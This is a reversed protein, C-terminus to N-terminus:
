RKKQKREPKAPAASPDFGVYVVYNDLADGRPLPFTVDQDVHVFPVTTQGPPVDVALRYLKSIIPKPNTGEEVVAVRLPVDVRGPGGAPGLLVRGQVGVKMTMVGGLAACERATQGITVQYRMSMPSSDNGATSIALTSAGQRVAVGPCDIEEPPGATGGAGQQPTSPGFFFSKMRDTIGPSSDSQARAEGLLPGCLMLAVFAARVPISITMLLGDDAVRGADNYRRL